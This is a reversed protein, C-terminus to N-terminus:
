QLIRVAINLLCFLRKVLLLRGSLKVCLLCWLLGVCRLSIGYKSGNFVICNHLIWKVDAVFAETSGYQRRKINQEFAVRFCSFVLSSM